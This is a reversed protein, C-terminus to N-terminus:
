LNRRARKRHEKAFNPDAHAKEIRTPIVKNNNCDDCCRGAASVPWPNNGWGTYGNGCIVCVRIEADAHSKGRRAPTKDQEKM